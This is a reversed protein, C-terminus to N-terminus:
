LHDPDFPATRRLEKVLSPTVVAPRTQAMGHGIRHGLAGINGFTPLAELWDMLYRVVASFDRGSIRRSIGKKEAGEERFTLTTRALGIRDIKGEAIRRIPARASYLAFRISSSGGNVALLLSPGEERKRMPPRQPRMWGIAM